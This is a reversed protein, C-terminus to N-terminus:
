MALFTDINIEHEPKKLSIGYIFIEFRQYPVSSVLGRPLEFIPLALELLMFSARLILEVFVFEEGVEALDEKSMDLIDM